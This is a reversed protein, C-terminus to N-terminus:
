HLETTVAWHNGSSEVNLPELRGVMPFAMRVASHLGSLGAMSDVKSGVMSCVSHSETSCAMSGASREVLLDASRIAMTEAKESGKSGASSSAMQVAM